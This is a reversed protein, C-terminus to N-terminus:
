FHYGIGVAFHTTSLDTASKGLAISGDAEAYTYKFEGFLDWRSSARFECGALVQVALSAVEYGAQKSRGEVKSVTYNITPGLGLGGYPQVRGMPYEEDQRLQLRGILSIPMLNIGNAIEYRQVVEHITVKQDVPMGLRTGEIQTAREDEAFVKFHLFEIAVGLWPRQKSFYGLRVGIYPASPASLSNDDWEVQRLVYDNELEPQVIRLDSDATLGVGTSLKLYIGTGDEAANAESCVLVLMTMCIVSKM